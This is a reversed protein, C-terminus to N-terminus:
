GSWNDPTLSQRAVVEPGAIDRGMGGPHRRIPQKACRGPLDARDGAYRSSGARPSLMDRRPPAPEPIPPCPGRGDRRRGHRSRYHLRQDAPHAPSRSSSRSVSSPTGAPGILLTASAKASGWIRCRSICNDSSRPPCGGTGPTRRGIRNEPAVSSMDRGAGPRGRMPGSLTILSQNQTSTTM